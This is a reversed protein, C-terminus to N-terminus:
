EAKQDTARIEWYSSVKSTRDLKTSVFMFVEPPKIDSKINISM